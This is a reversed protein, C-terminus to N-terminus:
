NHWMIHVCDVKSNVFKRRWNKPQSPPSAFSGIAITTWRNIIWKSTNDIESLHSAM